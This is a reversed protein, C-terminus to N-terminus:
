GGGGISQRPLGRIEHIVGILFWLADPPQRIQRTADMMWNYPLEGRRVGALSDMRSIRTM